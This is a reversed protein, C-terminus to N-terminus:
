TCDPLTHTSFIQVYPSRVFLWLLRSVWKRTLLSHLRGCVSWLSLYLDKLWLVFFFWLWLLLVSPHPHSQCAIYYKVRLFHCPGSKQKKDTTEVLSIWILQLFRKGNKTFSIFNQTPLLFFALRNSWRRKKCEYRSRKLCKKKEQM